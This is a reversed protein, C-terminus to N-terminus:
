SKHAGTKWSISLDTFFRMKLCASATHPAGKKGGQLGEQFAQVPIGKQQARELCTQKATLLERVEVMMM